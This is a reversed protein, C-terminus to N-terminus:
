TFCASVGLFPKNPTHKVNRRGEHYSGNCPLQLERATESLDLMNRICSFSGSKVVRALMPLM